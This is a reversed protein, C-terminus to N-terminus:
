SDRPSPSTYLLCIYWMGPTPDNFGIKDGAGPSNSRYTFDSETPSNALKLYLSAEGFGPELDVELRETDAPVNIKFYQDLGDYGSLPGYAIGPTLEIADEPEINEPEFSMSAAITFDNAKGYTYATIYYIGSKVNYLSVQHDNGPGSSWDSQSGIDM